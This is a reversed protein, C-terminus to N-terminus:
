NRWGGHMPVLTPTDVLGLAAAAAEPLTEEERPDPALSIMVERGRVEGFEGKNAM